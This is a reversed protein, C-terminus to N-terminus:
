ELTRDIPRETATLQDVLAPLINAVDGRLVASASSDLYTKEENIILLKGNRKLVNLPLEAAPTVQLSTGAIIMLDSGGAAKVALEWTQVPLQEGFLIADPKLISSCFKCRPLVGEAFYAPLFPRSPYSRYCEPCTLHTTSGHLELVTSSGARQHLGDINQTMVSRLRGTRELRALAAHAANPEARFIRVALPRFWGYFREPRHRFAQLSAVSMPDDNAWLGSHNSRFDPIGSPTSIGAGTLCTINSANELLEFAAALTEPEPM